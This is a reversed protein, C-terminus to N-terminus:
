NHCILLLLTMKKMKLNCIQINSNIDENKSNVQCMYMINNEFTTDKKTFVLIKNDVMKEVSMIVKENGNVIFHGGLDYRCERDIVKKYKYFM